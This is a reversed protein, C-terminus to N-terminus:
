TARKPRLNFLVQRSIKWIKLIGFCIHSDHPRKRHSAWIRPVSLYHDWCIRSKRDHVVTRVPLDLVFLFLVFSGKQIRDEIVVLLVHRHRAVAVGGKLCQSPLAVRHVPLRREEFGSLRWRVGDVWVGHDVAGVGEVDLSWYPNQQLLQVGACYAHLHM